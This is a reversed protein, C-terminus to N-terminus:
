GGIRLKEVGNGEEYHEFESRHEPRGALHDSGKQVKGGRNCVPRASKSGGELLESRNSMIHLSNCIASGVRAMGVGRVRKTDASEQVEGWHSALQM